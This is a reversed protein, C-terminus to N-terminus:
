SQDRAKLGLLEQGAAVLAEADAAVDELVREARPPHPPAAGCPRQCGGGLPATLTRPGPRPSAWRSARSRNMRSAREAAASSWGFITRIKSTARCLSTGYRTM